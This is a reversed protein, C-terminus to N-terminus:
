EGFLRSQRRERERAVIEYIHSVGLHYRRALEVHNRGTFERWIAADRRAREFAEGKPFYILGGGFKARIDEVAELAVDEALAAPLHPTLRAHLIRALDALVEPYHDPLTLM